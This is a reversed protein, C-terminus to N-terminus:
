GARRRISSSRQLTKGGTRCPRRDDGRWLAFEVRQPRGPCGDDLDPEAASRQARDLVSGQESSADEFRALVEDHARRRVAALAEDTM